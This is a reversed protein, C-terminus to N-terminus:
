EICFTMFVIQIPWRTGPCSGLSTGQVYSPFPAWCRPCLCLLFSILRSARWQICWPGLFTSASPLKRVFFLVFTMLVTDCSHSQISLTKPRSPSLYRNVGLALLAFLSPCFYPPPPNLSSSRSISISPAYLHGSISVLFPANNVLILISLYVTLFVNSCRPMETKTDEPDQEFLPATGIRGLRPQCEETVFSRMGAFSNASPHGLNREARSPIIRNLM